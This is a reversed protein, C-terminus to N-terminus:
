RWERRETACNSEKANNECVWGSVWMYLCLRYKRQITESGRLVVPLTMVKYM